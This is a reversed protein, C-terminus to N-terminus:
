ALGLQKQAARILTSFTSKALHRNGDRPGVSVLLKAILLFEDKSLVVSVSDPVGERESTSLDRMDAM